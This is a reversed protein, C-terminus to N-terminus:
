NVQRHNYIYINGVRNNKVWVNLDDLFFGAVINHLILKRWQFGLNKKSQTSYFGHRKM